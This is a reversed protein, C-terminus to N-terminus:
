PRYKEGTKWDIGRKALMRRAAQTSPNDDHGHAKELTRDLLTKPKIKEKNVLDYYENIASRRKEHYSNIAASTEKYFRKEGQVTKLQRIGKTKNNMTDSIPSELGKLALYDELSMKITNIM